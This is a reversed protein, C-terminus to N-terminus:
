TIGSPLSVDWRGDIFRTVDALHNPNCVLMLTEKPLLGVAETPSQVLVGSAEMFLGWRLPDADIAYVTNHLQALAYSLAIGKGAAGWIAVPRDERALASTFDSRRLSLSRIAQTIEAEQPFPRKFTSPDILVWAWEGRAFEGNAIVEYRDSFDSMRFLNVHDHSIQYWLENLLLWELQQFEVLVQCGPSAEALSALFDWPDPIHPLVCRMIYLDADIEKRSWLRRHLHPAPQRLVPDFGEAAFGIGRLFNVFEGQGCGIDVVRSGISQALHPVVRNEFYTATPLQIVQNIDVLSTCYHSDYRTLEPDFALNFLRPDGPQWALKITGTPQNRAEDRSAFFRSVNGPVQAHYGLDIASM